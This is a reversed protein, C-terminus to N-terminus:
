HCSKTVRLISISSLDPSKNLFKHSSPCDEPLPISAGLQKSVHSANVLARYRPPYFLSMTQAQQWRWTAKAIIAIQRIPTLCDSSAALRVEDWSGDTWKRKLSTRSSFESVKTNHHEEYRSSRAKWESQAKSTIRSGLSVKCDRVELDL